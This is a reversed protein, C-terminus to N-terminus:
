RASKFGRHPHAKPGLDALQELSKEPVALSAQFENGSTNLTMGDLASAFVQAQPQNQRQLRVFSAAFRVVDSLSVADQPSRTIADFTFAVPDGFLIGGAAQRVSQFAQAQPKLQQNTAANVHDTLLTGPLISAFWADNNTSIKSILAQLAPDLVSANARNAIIQQVSALDGFVAVGTMPIAFAISQGHESHVYLDIGNVNQTSGNNSLIQQQIWPVPFTGRALIVFKTQGKAVPQGIGAFVLTQLDRRPDFGSQQVFENFGTDTDMKSLMYQGLTSSSAQQVNISSVTTATAPVLALLGNDASALAATAAFSFLVSVALFRHM